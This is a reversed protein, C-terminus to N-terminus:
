PLSRDATAYACASHVGSISATTTDSRPGLRNEAVVAADSKNSRDRRSTYVYIISDRRANVAPPITTELPTPKGARTGAPTQLISRCGAVGSTHVTHQVSPPVSYLPCSGNSTM